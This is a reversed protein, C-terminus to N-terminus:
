RGLDRVPGPKRWFFVLLEVFRRSFARQLRLFPAEFPFRLLEMVIHEKGDIGSKPGSSAQRSSNRSTLSRQRRHSPCSSEPSQLARFARRRINCSYARHPTTRKLSKSAPEARRANIAHVRGMSHGLFRSNTQRLIACARVSRDQNKGFPLPLKELGDEVLFIKADVAFATRTRRVAQPM